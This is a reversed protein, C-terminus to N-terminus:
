YFTFTSTLEMNSVSESYCFAKGTDASRVINRKFSNTVQLFLLKGTGACSTCAPVSHSIRTGFSAMITGERDATSTIVREEIHNIRVSRTQSICTNMIGKSIDTETTVLEMGLTQIM